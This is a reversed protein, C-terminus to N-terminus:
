LFITKLSFNQMIRDGFEKAIKEFYMEDNGNNKPCAKTAYIQNLNMHNSYEKTKISVKKSLIKKQM